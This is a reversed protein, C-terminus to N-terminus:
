HKEKEEASTVVAGKVKEMVFYGKHTKGMIRYTLFERQCRLVIMGEWVVGIM